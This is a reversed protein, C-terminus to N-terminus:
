DMRRLYCKGDRQMCGVLKRYRTRNIVGRIAATAKTTDTWEKDTYEVLAVKLGSELFEDVMERVKVGTRTQKQAPSIQEVDFNLKM